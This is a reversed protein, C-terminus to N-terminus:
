QVHEEKLCFKPNRAHVAERFYSMTKCPRGIKQCALKRVNLIFGTINKFGKQLLVASKSIKLIYLYHKIYINSM